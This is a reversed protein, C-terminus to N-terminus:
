GATPAPTLHPLPHPDTRRDVVDSTGLHGGSNALGLSLSRHAWLSDAPQKPLSRTTPSSHGIQPRFPTRGPWGRVPSSRARLGRWAM